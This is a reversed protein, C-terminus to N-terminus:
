KRNTSYTQVIDSYYVFVICNYLVVWEFSASCGAASVVPAVPSAPTVMSVLVSVVVVVVAAVFMGGLDPM